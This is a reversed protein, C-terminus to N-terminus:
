QEDDVVEIRYGLANLYRIAFELSPNSRGSEIRSIASQKTALREALSQQSVGRSTRFQKLNM